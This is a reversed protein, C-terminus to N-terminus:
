AQLFQRRGRILYCNILVFSFNESNEGAVIAALLLVHVLRLVGTRM